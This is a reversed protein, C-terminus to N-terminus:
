RQYVMLSTPTGMISIQAFTLMEPETAEVVDEVVDVAAVAEVVAGVVAEVVAELVAAVAAAAAAAVGWAAASNLSWYSFFLPWSL